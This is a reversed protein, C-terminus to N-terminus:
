PAHLENAVTSARLSSIEQRTHHDPRLKMELRALESMLVARTAASLMSQHTGGVSIKHLERCCANWGLDPRSPDHRPDETLFLWLAMPLAGAPLSGFARGRVLAIVTRSIQFYTQASGSRLVFRLLARLVRNARCHVAVPVARVAITNVLFRAVSGHQILGAELRPRLGQRRHARREASIARQFVGGVDGELVVVAEVATGSALLRRATEAALKGGYSYGVLWLRRHPGTRRIAAIAEAFYRAADYDGTLADGGCRADIAITSFRQGLERYFDSTSVDDGWMGPFFAIFPRTDNAITEIASGQTLREILESPRTELGFLGVAIQRGLLAELRVLLDLGKLSDGGAADFALDAAFSDASLVGSWVQRVIGSIDSAAPAAASTMPPLPQLPREDLQPEDLAKLAVLDVKGSPLRPLAALGCFYTPRMAPPLQDRCWNRLQQEALAGERAPTCYAVLVTGAAGDRAIVATEAVDPCATLVAEVEDLNVTSARIKVQRDRRGIFELLGNPLLRGFDGTRYCIRGPCKASAIFRAETLADDRWYGAALAPSAVFIEGIENTGVAAGDDGILALEVGDLPYGIPVLPPELPTAHDLCWAAYTSTENAGLTVLLRCTKAFCRRYLEVDSYLVRESGFRVLRVGNALSEEGPAESGFLVRFTSPVVFYVSPRFERLIRKTANLGLRKLDILGVEAGAVLASLAFKILNLGSISQLLPIRDNAALAAGPGSYDLRAALSRESISIGKPEGTSGSTFGVMSIHDSGVPILSPIQRAAAQPLSSASVQRLTPDIQRMPPATESNTIVAALGCRAMIARNREAPHDVNLPVATRGAMLLALVAALYAASSPLFIGIPSGPDPLTAIEEAVAAAWSVLEAYTLTASGDYVAPCDGSALARSIIAQILSPSM